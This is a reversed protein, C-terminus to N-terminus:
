FLAVRPIRTERRLLLHHYAVAISVIFYITFYIYNFFLSILFGGKPIPFTAAYSCNDCEWSLVIQIM